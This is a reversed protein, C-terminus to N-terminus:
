IHNVVIDGLQDWELTDVNHVSCENFFLILKSYTERCQAESALFKHNRSQRAIFRLLLVQDDASLSNESTMENATHRKKYFKPNTNTLYM